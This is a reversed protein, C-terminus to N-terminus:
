GKTTLLTFIEKAIDSNPLVLITQSFPEGDLVGDHQLNLAYTRSQYWGEIFKLLDHRVLEKNEVGNNVVRGRSSEVLSLFWATRPAAVMFRDRKFTSAAEFSQLGRSRTAVLFGNVGAEELYWVTEPGSNSHPEAIKEFYVKSTMGAINVLRNM